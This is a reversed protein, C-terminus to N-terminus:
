HEGCLEGELSWSPFTTLSTILGDFGVVLALLRHHHHQLLVLLHLPLTTWTLIRLLLCTHRYWTWTLQSLDTLLCPTVTVMSIWPLSSTLERLCRTRAMMCTEECCRAPCVCTTFLHRRFQHSDSLITRTPLFQM